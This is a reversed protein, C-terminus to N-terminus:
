PSAPRASFVLTEVPRSGARGSPIQSPWPLGLEVWRVLAALQEPELKGGPPMKLEGDQRTAHILLSDEPSGSSAAEGRNGGALIAERSEVSLGSTLLKNNHCAVCKTSLVPRVEHEFFRIADASFPEDPGQQAALPLTGWVLLAIGRVLGSARM